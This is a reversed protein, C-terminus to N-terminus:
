GNLISRVTHVGTIVASSTRFSEEGAGDDCANDEEVVGVPDVTYVYVMSPTDSMSAATKAWSLAKQPDDLTLYVHNSRGYDKGILIGPVLVEGINLQVDTGHFYTM